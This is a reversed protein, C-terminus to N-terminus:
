RLGAVPRTRTGGSPAPLGRYSKPLSYHTLWDCGRSVPSGALRWAFRFSPPGHLLTSKSEHDDGHADDGSDRSGTCARLLLVRRNLRRDICMIRALGALVVGQGLLQAGD